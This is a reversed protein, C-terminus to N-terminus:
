KLVKLKFITREELFDMEVLGMIILDSVLEETNHKTLGTIYHLAKLDLYETNNLEKLIDQVDQNYTITISQASKEKKWIKMMIGDALHNQDEHLIFSRYKGKHDPAKHPYKKSFPIDVELVKKGEINWEKTSFEIEPKCFRQAANQVMFIEEESRVGAIIGNDKVGVLLKGGKTNAFAVLSRAIKAADSIEFKFDLNLGEGQAILLKIPHKKKM